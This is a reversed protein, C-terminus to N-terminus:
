LEGGSLRELYIVAKEKGTKRAITLATEGEDSAAFITAGASRLSQLVKVHGQMAALHVSRIGIHM